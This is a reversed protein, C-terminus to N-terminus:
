MMILFIFVLKTKDVWFKQLTKNKVYAHDLLSGSIHTDDNVLLTYNSLFNQLNINTCNLIDTNFDSIVLDITHHDSLLNELKNYFTTLSSSPSRYLQM